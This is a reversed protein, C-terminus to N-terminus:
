SMIFRQISFDSQYSTTSPITRAVHSKERSPAFNTTESQIVFGSVFFPTSVCFPPSAKKNFGIYCHAPLSASIFFRYGCVASSQPYVFGTM